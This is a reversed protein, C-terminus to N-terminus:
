TMGYFMKAHHANYLGIGGCHPCGWSHPVIWDSGGHCDLCVMPEHFRVTYGQLHPGHALMEAETLEANGANLPTKFQLALFRGGKQCLRQVMEPPFVGVLTTGKKVRAWDAEEWHELLPAEPFQRRLWAQAGPHRTVLVVDDVAAVDSKEIKLPVLMAQNAKLQAYSLSKGRQGREANTELVFLQNCAGSLSALLPWPLTKAVILHDGKGLQEPTPNPMDDLWEGRVKHVRYLWERAGAHNSALILKNGM